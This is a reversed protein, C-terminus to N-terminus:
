SAPLSHIENRHCDCLYSPTLPYLHPPSLALSTSIHEPSFATPPCPETTGSQLSGIGNKIESAVKPSFPVHVDSTMMAVGGGGAVNPGVVGDGGGLHRAGNQKM